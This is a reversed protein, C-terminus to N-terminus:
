IKILKQLTKKKFEKNQYNKSYQKIVKPRLKSTNALFLEFGTKKM